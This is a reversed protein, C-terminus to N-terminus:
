KTRFPQRNQYYKLQEQVTAALGPDSRSMQLAEQAAAVADAYQGNEAFAAALARLALPDKGGSLQTARKALAIAAPGDRLSADPSTALVWALNKQASPLDPMSQLALKWQQIAMATQGELLFANGLNNYAM